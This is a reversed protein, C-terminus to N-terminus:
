SVTSTRLFGVVVCHRKNHEAGHHGAHAKGAQQERFRELARHWVNQRATVSGDREVLPDSKNGVGPVGRQGEVEVSSVKTIMEIAAAGVEGNPKWRTRKDKVWARSNTHPITYQSSKRHSQVSSAASM